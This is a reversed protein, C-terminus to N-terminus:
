NSSMKRDAEDSEKVPDGGDVISESVSSNNEGEPKRVGRSPIGRLRRSLRLMNKQWHDIANARQKNSFVGLLWLADLSIMLDDLTQILSLFQHGLPSAVLVKHLGPHAYVPRDLIGNDERLKMFRASEAHINKQLREILSVVLSELGDARDTEGMVRLVVEVHYLAYEVKPYEREVIRQALETELNLTREFAPRSYPRRELKEMAKARMSLLLAFNVAEFMAGRDKLHAIWGM